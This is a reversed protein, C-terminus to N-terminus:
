VVSPYGPGHQRVDITAHPLWGDWVNKTREFLGSALNVFQARRAGLVQIGSGPLKGVGLKESGHIDGEHLFPLM